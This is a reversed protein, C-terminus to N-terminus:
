DSEPALYTMEAVHADNQSGIIHYPNQNATFQSDNVAEDPNVQRSEISIVTHHDQLLGMLNITHPLFLKGRYAIRDLIHNDPESVVDPMATILKNAGVSILLTDTNYFGRTNHGSSGQYIFAGFVPISHKSKWHRGGEIHSSVSYIPDQESNAEDFILWDVFQGVSQQLETQIGDFISAHEYPIDFRGRPDSHRAM